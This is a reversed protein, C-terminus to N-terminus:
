LLSEEELDGKFSKREREFRSGIERRKAKRSHITQRRRGEEKEEREKTREKRRGGNETRLESVRQVTSYTGDAGLLAIM